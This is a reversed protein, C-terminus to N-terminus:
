IVRTIKEFEQEPHKEEYGLKKEEAEEQTQCVEIPEGKKNKIIYVEKSDTNELIARKVERRITEEIIDKLKINEM